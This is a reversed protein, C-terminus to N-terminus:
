GCKVVVLLRLHWPHIAVRSVQSHQMLTTAGAHECPLPNEGQDPFHYGHNLWSATSYPLTGIRPRQLSTRLYNPTSPTLHCHCGGRPLPLWTLLDTSSSLSSSSPSIMVLYLLPRDVVSHLIHPNISRRRSIQQVFGSLTFVAKGYLCPLLQRFANCEPSLCIATEQAPDKRKLSKISGDQFFM